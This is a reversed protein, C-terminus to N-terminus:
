VVVNLVDLEGGEGCTIPLDLGRSLQMDGLFTDAVGGLFSSWLELHFVHVKPRQHLDNGARKSM